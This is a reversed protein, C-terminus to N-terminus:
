GARDITWTTVQSLNLKRLGGRASFLASSVSMMVWYFTPYLISVPLEGVLGPEYRSDLLVGCTLQALCCVLLILGWYNPAMSGGYPDYGFSFPLLWFASVSLFVWAWVVSLFSELYIPLMRYLRPTWLIRRHRRLVQGLGLAWRTRQKWLVRIREPVEMWVKARPEYRVEWNLMQLKFTLDIDETAMGPSFMGAEVLARRRFMGCVGSVCMVRGWIRQARRMLGIVSSFEVAQLKCLLNTRNRVRANGAVAGVRPAEFHPVMARLIQPEPISDADMILLLEGRACPIADNLAMAKGENIKKDILRVRPHALYPLVMQATRDSSGDNIVIVEYNPYDIEVLGELAPGISEKECYAPILISVFPCDREEGNWLEPKGSRDHSVFYVIATTIWILSTTIPYLGYFQIAMWYFTSSEVAQVWELM